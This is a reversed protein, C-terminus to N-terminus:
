RADDVVTDSPRIVLGIQGSGTQVLTRQVGANILVDRLRKLMADLRKRVVPWWDEAQTDAPKKWVRRALRKWSMPEAEELLTAVLIGLKGRFWTPEDSVTLCVGELTIRFHLIQDWGITEAVGESVDDDTEVALVEIQVGPALDVTTGPALDIHPRRVGDVQVTGRLAQLRLGEGRHAVYAHAESVHPDDIRIAATASRGILEGGGVEVTQGCVRLRVRAM